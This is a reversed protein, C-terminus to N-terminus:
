VHARGIQTMGQADVRKIVGNVQELLLDTISSFKQQIQFSVEEMYIGSIDEVSKETQKQMYLISWGFVVFCVLLVSVVSYAFFSRIKKDLMM